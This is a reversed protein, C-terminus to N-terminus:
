RSLYPRVEDANPSGFAQSKAQQNVRTAIRSFIEVGIDDEPNHSANDEESPAM